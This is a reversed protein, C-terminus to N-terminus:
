KLSTYWSIGLETLNCTWRGAADCRSELLAHEQLLSLHRQLTSMRVQLRKCIAALPVEARGQEAAEYLTAIIEALLQDGTSATQQRPSFDSQATQM